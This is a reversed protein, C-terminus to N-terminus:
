LACEHGYDCPRHDGNDGHAGGGARRMDTVFTHRLDHFIFGGKEKRGWPIGASKCATKIATEFRHEIARGNYLFVFGGHLPRPLKSLVRYAEDGLPVAKGQGEKTDSAELRSQMRSRSRVPERRQKGKVRYDIWYRIRKSKKAQVLDEGCVCARNKAGQKKRCRPCEALITM